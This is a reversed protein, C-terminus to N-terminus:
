YWLYWANAKLSKRAAAKNRIAFLLKM